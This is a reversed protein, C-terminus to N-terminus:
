WVKARSLNPASFILTSLPTAVLTLFLSGVFLGPLNGLGLSVAGEDRLPLVVFYASLIQMCLFEQVLKLLAILFLIVFILFDLIRYGLSIGLFFIHVIYIDSSRINMWLKTIRLFIKRFINCSVFFFSSASYFVAYIEHPHVVTVFFSVITEIRSRGIM